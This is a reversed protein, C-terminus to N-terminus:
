LYKRKRHTFVLSNNLSFTPKSINTIYTIEAYEVVSHSFAPLEMNDYSVDAKCKLMRSRTLRYKVTTLTQMEEKNQQQHHHKTKNKL